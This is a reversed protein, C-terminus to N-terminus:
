GYLTTTKFRIVCQRRACCNRSQRTRLGSPMLIGVPYIYVGCLINRCEGLCETYTCHVCCLQSSWQGNYTCVHSAPPSRLVIAWLSLFCDNVQTIRHSVALKLGCFFWFPLCSHTTFTKLQVICAWVSQQCDREGRVREMKTGRKSHRKRLRWNNQTWYLWRPPPQLITHLVPPTRNSCSWLLRGRRFNMFSIKYAFEHRIEREPVVTEESCQKILIVYKM